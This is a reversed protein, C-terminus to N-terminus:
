AHWFSLLQEALRQFRGVCLLVRVEQAPQQRRSARACAPDASDPKALQLLVGIPYLRQFAVDDCSPSLKPECPPREESPSSGYKATCEAAVPRPRTTLTPHLPEQDARVSM